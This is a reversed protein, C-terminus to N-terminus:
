SYKVVYKLWTGIYHLTASQDGDKRCYIHKLNNIELYISEGPELLYGNTPNSQITNSGVWVDTGSTILNKITVGTLLEM